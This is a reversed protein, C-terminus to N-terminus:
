RKALIAKNHMTQDFFGEPWYELKGNSYLKPTVVETIGKNMTFYHFTTDDASLKGEKVAIRIGDMVYDSHTEVIIQVGLSAAIAILKGMSTQGKPHLHAEPNEILLLSGRETKKKNEEEDEWTSAMGLIAAIVPLTYSIGFGVNTPRYGNITAFSTDIISDGGFKFEVNPSIEELWGRINFLLTDGESKPHKLKDPVIATEHRAIYDIVYEGNEGVCTLDGMFTYMPLSVRPGWRDASIYCMYPMGLLQNIHPSIPSISPRDQQINNIQLAVKEINHFSYEFAITDSDTMGVSKNRLEKIPGHRELTVDRIAAWRWLMRVAQFVSSKGTNNLGTLLTMNSIGLEIESFSKFNKLKIKNLM